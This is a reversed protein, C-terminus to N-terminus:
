KNQKHTKNQININLTIKRNGDKFIESSTAPTQQWETGDGIQIKAHSENATVEILQRTTHRKRIMYQQWM